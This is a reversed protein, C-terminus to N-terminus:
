GTGRCPPRGTWAAIARRHEEDIEALLDAVVFGAAEIDRKVEDAAPHGDQTMWRWLRADQKAAARTM